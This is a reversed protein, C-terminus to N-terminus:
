KRYQSFAQEFIQVPNPPYRDKGSLDVLSIGNQDLSHYPFHFFFFIIGIITVIIIRLFINYYVIYLTCTCTIIFTIYMHLTDFIRISFSTKM